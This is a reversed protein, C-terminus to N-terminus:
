EFDSTGLLKENGSSRALYTAIAFSDSIFTNEDVELIPFTSHCAKKLIDKETDTGKAIVMENLKVGCLNAVIMVFDANM